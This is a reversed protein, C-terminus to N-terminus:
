FDSSFAPARKTDYATINTNRSTFQNEKGNFTFKIKREKSFAAKDRLNTKNQKVQIFLYGFLRDNGDTELRKSKKKPYATLSLDSNRCPFILIWM